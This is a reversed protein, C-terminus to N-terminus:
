YGFDAWTYGLYPDSADRATASRMQADGKQRAAREKSAAKNAAQPDEPHLKRYADYEKPGGVYVQNKAADPYLFFKRGNRQMKRINGAPLSKVWEQQVPTTAVLVKFGATSLENPDVSTAKAAAATATGAVCLSLVCACLLWAWAAPQVTSFRKKM